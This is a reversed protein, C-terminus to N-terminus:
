EMACCYTGSPSAQFARAPINSHVHVCQISLHKIVLRPWGCSSYVRTWLGHAMPSYPM